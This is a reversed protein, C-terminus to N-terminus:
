AKGYFTSEYLLDTKRAIVRWDYFELVRQRAKEGASSSDYAERVKDTLDEHSDPKYLFGYERNLIIEKCGSHDPAVVPKRMAMAELIVTPFGERKSTMVLARCASIADLTSGRDMEEIFFLNRPSELGYAAMIAEANVGRGIMLFPYGPIRGALEIFARPDKIPRLGGTFLIFDKFGFKNIFREPRARDCLEMDVGNPIMSTEIRDREYLHDHLWQSVSIKADAQSATELLARSFDRQWQKLGEPYDEAFYLSHYTHVWKRKTSRLLHCLDILWPEVHSHIIDYNSLGIKSLFQSYFRIRQTNRRIVCKRLFVPPIVYVQHTSYKKFALIHQPAGGYEDIVPGVAVRLKTKRNSERYM